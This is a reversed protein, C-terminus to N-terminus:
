RNLLRMLVFASDLRRRANADRDPIVSFFRCTALNRAVPAVSEHVLPLDVHTKRALPVAPEGSMSPDIDAPVIVSNPVVLMEVKAMHLLMDFGVTAAAVAAAFFSVCIGHIGLTTDAQDGDETTALREPTFNAVEWLM